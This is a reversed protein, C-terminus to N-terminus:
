FIKLFVEKGVCEGKIKKLENGNCKLSVFTDCYLVLNRFRLVGGYVDKIEHPEMLTKLLLKM